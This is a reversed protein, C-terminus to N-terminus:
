ICASDRDPAAEASSISKNALRVSDERGTALEKGEYRGRSSLGLTMEVQICGRSVEDPM